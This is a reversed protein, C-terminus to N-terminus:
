DTERLSGETKKAEIGWGAPHAARFKNVAVEADAAWIIHEVRPSPSQRRSNVLPGNVWGIVKYRLLHPARNPARRVKM